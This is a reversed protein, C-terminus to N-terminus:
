LLKKQSIYMKWKQSVEKLFNPNIDVGISNRNLLYAAILTSGSGAFPDYINDNVFSYLTILRKPIEIPFSAPHNSKRDPEIFWVGKTYERWTNKDIKSLEKIKKDVQRKGPKKFILIHEFISDLIKPTPPYPYSGFLPKGKLVGNNGWGKVWIIEDFFIFGLDLMLKTVDAVIPYVFSKKEIKKRSKMNTIVLCVTGGKCLIDYVNKFVLFLNNLYEEYTKESGIINQMGYDVYNFYPPSTVVLHIEKNPKFYRSDAIYYYTEPNISLAIKNEELNLSFHQKLLM